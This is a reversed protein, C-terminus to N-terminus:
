YSDLKKLVPIRPPRGAHKKSPPLLFERLTGFRLKGLVPWDFDSRSVHFKPSRFTAGATELSRMEKLFAESRSIFLRLDRPERNEYEMSLIAWFHLVRSFEAKAALFSSRTGSFKKGGTTEAARIADELTAPIETKWAHWLFSALYGVQTGRYAAKEAERAIRPYGCAMDQVAWIRDSGIEAIQENSASQLWGALKWAALIGAKKSDNPFHMVGFLSTIPECNFVALDPM